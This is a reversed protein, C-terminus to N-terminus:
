ETEVRVDGTLLKPLLYDRTEALQIGERALAVQLALVSTMANSYAGMLLSPPVILEHSKLVGQNINQQAAGVAIRQLYTRAELLANM